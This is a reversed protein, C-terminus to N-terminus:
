ASFQQPRVPRHGAEGVDDGLTGRTIREECLLDDPVQGFAVHQDAAASAIQARIGDISTLTGLVNCATIAARM